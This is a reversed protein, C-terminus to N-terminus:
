EGPPLLVCDFRAPGLDEITALHGDTALVTAAVEASALLRAAADNGDVWQNTVCTIRAAVRGRADLALVRPAGDAAPAALRLAPGPAAVAAVAAAGAALLLIM